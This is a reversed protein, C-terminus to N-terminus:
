VVAQRQHFLLSDLCHFIRTSCLLQKFECIFILAVAAATLLVSLTIIAVRESTVKSGNNSPAKQQSGASCLCHLYVFVLLKKKKKLQAPFKVSKALLTYEPKSGTAHCVVFINIPISNTETEETLQGFNDKVFIIKNTKGRSKTM